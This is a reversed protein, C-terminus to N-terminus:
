HQVPLPKSLIHRLDKLPMPRAFFFGQLLDCERSVLDDQQERTEIGEAVVTLNLHHAITIVGQVIAANGPNSIIDHIFSRDLKVTHIPLARLYGLSSFGTGFDDIAIQLGMARLTSVTEIAKDTDSMLVNETIELEVKEPRVGTEEIIKRVEDIFGDRRFQLPSINVAVSFDPEGEKQLTVMDLCAQRLVWRGIAIIQGTQETLPIFDGPPVLGRVPHRWRILAEVSHLKGTEADVIPQYHLEFQEERIAENLDRRLAVLENGTATSDESYWQWTNRGQQKAQQMAQEAFHILEDPRGVTERNSAIGISGSIHLLHPGIEFPQSVAQLIKQAKELITSENTLGAMLVVFEDGSFRALTDGPSMLEELRNATAILLKDGVGHGMGDNIQKFGDLDIFLLALLCRSQLCLQYDHKLRVEFHQRNLLGTLVDHAAHYALQEEYAKHQSIDHQIGIFHTCNGDDDWIPSVFLNNWFPTGDKRYNRLTVQAETKDAIARRIQNVADPDTGPGQLFRCNKGLVEERTYGTIELFPKNVYVLPMNPKSADSIVVGNISAEVGRMLLRLEEEYHKRLTVERAICYVGVVEDNIKIPLDTVELNHLQGDASISSVELYQPEGACARRFAENGRDQDEPVVFDNYHKGIIDRNDFGSLKSLAANGRRFRGELDFEFVADPHNEFLSRYRQKTEILAERDRHQGIALAVLAAANEIHERESTTPEKPTRYYTAFTGLLESSPSLVPVSWCAHVDEAQALDHFNSWKPDKVIDPTVVIEQRYASTGCTGVTPGIPIDKLATRFTESLGEGAIIDLTNQKPDFLMISCIGDALQQEVMRCIASLTEALPLHRAIMEQIHQQAKLQRALETMGIEKTGTRV